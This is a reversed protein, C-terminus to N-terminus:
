SAARHRKLIKVDVDTLNDDTIADVGMLFSLYENLEPVVAHRGNTDQETECRGIPSTV